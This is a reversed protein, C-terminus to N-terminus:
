YQRQQPLFGVRYWDHEHLDRVRDGVPDDRAEGLRAAVDRTEGGAFVGDAPFLQLPDLSNRRAWGADRDTESRWLGILHPHRRGRLSGCREKCTFTVTAPARSPASRSRAMAAAARSDFPPRITNAFETVLACRRSTMSSAARCRRGAM